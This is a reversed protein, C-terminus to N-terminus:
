ETNSHAIIGWSGGRRSYPRGKNGDHTAAAADIPYLLLMFRGSRSWAEGWPSVCFTSGPTPVPNPGAFRRMDLDDSVRRVGVLAAGPCRM